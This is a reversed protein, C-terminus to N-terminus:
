HLSKKRERGNPQIQDEPHEHDDAAGGPVKYRQDVWTGLDVM